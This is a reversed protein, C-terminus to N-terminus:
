SFNEVPKVSFMGVGLHKTRGIGKQILEIFREKESVQLIGTFPVRLYTVYMQKPKNKKFKEIKYGGIDLAHIHFGFQKSKEIFWNEQNEKELIGLTKGTEKDKKTPNVECFFRFVAGEDIKNLDIERKEPMSYVYNIPLSEWNPENLTQVLYYVFNGQKERRFLLRDEESIIHPNNITRHFEYVSKLDRLSDRRHYDPIIKSLWIKKM